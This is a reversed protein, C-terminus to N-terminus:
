SARFRSSLFLGEITARTLNWSGGGRLAFTRSYLVPRGGRYTKREFYKYHKEVCYPMKNINLVKQDDLWLIISVFFPFFKLKSKRVKIEAFAPSYKIKIRPAAEHIQSVFRRSALSRQASCAPESKQSKNQFPNTRIEAMVSPSVVRPRINIKDVRGPLNRFHARFWLVVSEKWIRDLKNSVCRRLM